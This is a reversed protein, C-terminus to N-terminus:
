KWANLLLNNQKLIERIQDYDAQTNVSDDGLESFWFTTGDQHSNRNFRVVTNLNIMITGDMYDDDDPRPIGLSEYDVEKTKDKKPIFKVPVEIWM